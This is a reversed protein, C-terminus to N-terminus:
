RLFPPFIYNPTGLQVQGPDEYCRVHWIRAESGYLSLCLLFGPMLLYKTTVFLNFPKIFNHGFLSAKIM